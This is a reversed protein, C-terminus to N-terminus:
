LTLLLLLASCVAFGAMCIQLIRQCPVRDAVYGGVLFLCIGPLFQALGVLGLDLPRHTIEYVQWGVAVSQMESSTTSLLRAFLYCRFNPSRFAVRSSSSESSNAHM